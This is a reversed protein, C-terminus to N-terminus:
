DKYTLELESWVQQDSHKAEIVQEISLEQELLLYEMLMRDRLYVRPTFAGHETKVWDETERLFREYTQRVQYGPAQNYPQYAIYECYGENLWSPTQMGGWWNTYDTYMQSHVGEHSIIQVLNLWQYPHDGQRLIGHKFDPQGLYIHKDYKSSAINSIGFLGLLQEYATGQVFYLEFVQEPQYFASQQLLLQASDLVAQCHQDCSLSASAFVDFCKYTFQQKVFWQPFQVAFLLGLFSILLLYIVRRTWISVPKTM